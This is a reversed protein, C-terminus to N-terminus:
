PLRGIQGLIFQEQPADVGFQVTGGLSVRVNEILVLADFYLSRHKLYYLDHCLKWSTGGETGGYGCRAQAWGALGPKVLHRRDYYALRQELEVILERREPRPGIITMEGRLVNWLQPMEDLHLRRMVKGISTVREDEASSWRPGDEESEVRMSRLKIMEFERGSEGVRRQRYLIPGGDYRRIAIALILLVPSLMILMVTGVILDFARKSFPSGARYRPHMLYQFWASNSQGLPVHGLLDEYLQSAEILRVPLDLCASAVWEFLELRSMHPQSIVTAAGNSHVLLEISNRGVVSRVDGLAGLWRPGIDAQGANRDDGLWGVVEYARIGAARLEYDLGVALGPSGILAIRVRRAAQFQRNFGASIFTAVWAGFLPVAMDVAPQPAGAAAFIGLAAAIGILPAMGRVVLAALPMLHLPLRGNEMLLSAVLVALFVIAGRGLSHMHGGAMAGAVVAPAVGFASRSYVRQATLATQDTHSRTSV